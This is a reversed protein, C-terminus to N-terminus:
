KNGWLSIQTTDKTKNEKHETFFKELIDDYRTQDNFKKRIGGRIASCVERPQRGIESAIFKIYNEIQDYEKTSPSREIEKGMLKFARMIRIDVVVANPDGRMARAFNRVKRGNLPEKNKINNLHSEVAQFNTDRCIEEEPNQLREKYIKFNKRAKTVNGKLQTRISTAALIDILIGTDEHNIYSSILDHTESYRNKDNRGKLLYVGIDSTDILEHPTEYQLHYVNREITDQVENAHLGTRKAIRKIHAKMQHAVQLIDAGNKVGYATALTKPVGNLDNEKLLFIPILTTDIGSFESNHEQFEQFEHHENQNFLTNKSNYYKNKSLIKKTELNFANAIEKATNYQILTTPQTNVITRKWGIPIRPFKELIAIVDLKCLSALNNITM